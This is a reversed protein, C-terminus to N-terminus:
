KFVECTRALGALNPAKTLLSAVVVLEQRAGGRAQAAAEAAAALQLEMLDLGASVGSAAALLASAGLADAWPSAAAAAAAVAAGGGKKQWNGASGSPAAEAAGRIRGQGPAPALEAAATAAQQEQMGQRLVHREAELFENVAELLSQVPTTPLSAHRTHPPWPACSCALRVVTCGRDPACRVQPAGEFPAERLPGKCVVGAPATAEELDFSDFNAAHALGRRLRGM